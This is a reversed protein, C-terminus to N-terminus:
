KVHEEEQTGKKWRHLLLFVMKWGKLCSFSFSSSSGAVKVESEKSTRERQGFGKLFRFCVTKRWFRRCSLFSLDKKREATFRFDNRKQRTRVGQIGRPSSFNVVVLAERSRPKQVKTEKSFCCLGNNVNNRKRKGLPSHNSAASTSIEGGLLLLQAVFFYVSVFFPDAAKRQKAAKM